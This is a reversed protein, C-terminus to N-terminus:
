GNRAEKMGAIERVQNEDANLRIAEVATIIYHLENMKIYFWTVLVMPSFQYRHFEKLAKDYFYRSTKAEVWLPDLNWVTGEEHPNLFRAYKWNEWDEWSDVSKDLIALADSAIIDDKPCETNVFALRKRIEEAPMKYFVKLRMAWIINRISYVLTILEKVPKKDATSLKDISAWLYRVFQIDLKTDLEKQEHVHPVKNYWSLISGATIKSIDPYADYNLISYPKINRIFPKEGGVTLAAAMLKLNDFDYSELLAILVEDPNTYTNVLKIYQNVFRNLAKEEIQKAMFMEPVSPVEEDFLLAWLESLTHVSFLKETRSGVYSRALMGSAKAYVYSSASSRDM